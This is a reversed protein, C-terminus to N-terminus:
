DYTGHMARILELKGVLYQLESFQWAARLDDLTLGAVDTTGTIWECRARAASSLSDNLDEDYCAFMSACQQVLDYAPYYGEDPLAFAQYVRGSFRDECTALLAGEPPTIESAQGKLWIRTRDLFSRDYSSVLLSMGYYAALMPIRYRTTPFTYIPEPEMPVGKLLEYGAAELEIGCPHGADGWSAPAWDVARDAVIRGCFYDTCTAGAGGVALAPKPAYGVPKGTMRSELMCWGYKTANNAMLGGFLEAVEDRFVTGYNILYRRTDADSDTAILFPEPDSLMEFAAIRDYVSGASVVVPLYGDYSWESYIPRAGDEEMLYVTNIYNDENMEDIPEYRATMANFGFYDPTPRGFADVMTSFGLHSALAGSLGGHIDEEWRKGFRKKWYDDHNYTAYGMVWWQYQTKMQLFQLRIANDYETPWYTDKQHWYGAFLWYQEYNERANAVVEYPDIGEDWFTVTPLGFAVEDGGFRYPVVTRDQSCRLGEYLRRCVQGLQCPTGEGSCPEGIVDSRRVDVRDYMADLDGWLDPYQTPHMRRLSKGLGEGREKIVPVNGPHELAPDVGFYAAFAATDPEQKFVEMTGAYGYKIAAIDYLGLGLWPLNFKSYYDMVSSYQHERMGAAAQAPTEGWARHAVFGGETKKVKLDWWARPFNLADTSAEFNHRLGVSHGVEHIAVGYFIRQQLERLFTARLEDLLAKMEAQTQRLVPDYTDEELPTPIYTVEFGYPSYGNALAFRARLQEILAEASCDSLDAQFVSFDFGLEVTGAKDAMRTCIAEDYRAKYETSLRLLAGDYFDALDLRRKAMDVYYDKLAKLGGAHSWSRLAYRERQAPTLTPYGEGIRPDKFLLKVDDTIFLDELAPSAALRGMRSAAVNADTKALGNAQLDEAVDRTVLNATIKAVDAEDYGNQWYTQRLRKYKVAQAIYDAYAIERYSKVGAMMELRDLARNAGERMAAVYNYAAASVIRGNLPDASSPGYGYLGNETAAQVAFLFNYRLDGNRKVEETVECPTTTGATAGTRAAATPANNECVVFAHEFGFDSPERGTAARVAADFAKAWQAGVQNAQEVLEDPYDADLYFVVPKIGTVNGAADRQLLDFRNAYRLVGSYTTGYSKDWAARESRFYGFRDMDFDSYTLPEYADDTAHDVKMFATRAKIRESVCEFLGGTYWPYYWCIPIIGYGELEETGAALVHESVFDMYGQEFLLRPEESPDAAEGEYNTFSVSQLLSGLTFQRNSVQTNGWQVRIHDREWWLRDTTNESKVNTREGTNPNYEWMIDVHATIPFAAVVGSKDMWIPAGDRLYEGNCSCTTQGDIPVGDADCYARGTACRLTTDTDIRPSGNYEGETFTYTRYFFLTNEQIEFVGREMQGMDGVFTYASAYPAQIVTQRMYWEAPSGDANYLLDAKAVLNAQVRDVTGVSQACGAIAMIALTALRMRTTM